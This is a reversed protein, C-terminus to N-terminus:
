NNLWSYDAKLQNVAKLSHKKEQEDKLRLYNEMKNIALIFQLHLEKFKIPVKLDLLKNKIEIINKETFNNHSILSEYATFFEGARSKYDNELWALNDPKLEKNSNDAPKISESTLILYLILGFLILLLFILIKPKKPM